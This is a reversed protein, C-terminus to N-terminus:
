DGDLDDDEFDDDYDVDESYGCTLCVWDVGIIVM